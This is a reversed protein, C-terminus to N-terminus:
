DLLFDANDLWKDLDEEEVGDDDDTVEVFLDTNNFFGVCFNIEGKM